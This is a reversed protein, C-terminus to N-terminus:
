QRGGPEVDNQVGIAVRASLKKEGREEDMSDFGTTLRIRRVRMWEVKKDSSGQVRGGKSNEIPAAQIMERTLLFFLVASLQAFQGAQKSLNHM